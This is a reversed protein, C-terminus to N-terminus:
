NKLQYEICKHLFFQANRVFRVATETVWGAEQQVSLSPENWTPLAAWECSYAAQFLHLRVEVVGYTKM